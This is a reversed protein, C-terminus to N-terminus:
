VGRRGESAQGKDEASGQLSHRQCSGRPDRTGEKSTPGSFRTLASAVVSPKELRGEFFSRHHRGKCSWDSESAQRRGSSYRASRPQGSRSWAPRPQGSRGQAAPRARQCSTRSQGAVEQLGQSLLRAGSGHLLKFTSKFRVGHLCAVQKSVKGSGFRSTMAGQMQTM